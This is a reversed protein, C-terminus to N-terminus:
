LSLMCLSYGEGSDVINCYNTELIKFLEHTEKVSVCGLTYHCGIM